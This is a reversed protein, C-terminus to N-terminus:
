SKNEARKLMKTALKFLGVTMAAFIIPDIVTILNWQGNSLPITGLLITFFLMLCGFGRLARASRRANNILEAETMVFYAASKFCGITMAAFMIPDAVTIFNWKGTSIPLTVALITFFLMLYGLGRLARASRRTNEIRETEPMLIRNMLAGM